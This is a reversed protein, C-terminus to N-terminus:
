RVGGRDDIMLQRRMLTTFRDRFLAFRYNDRWRDLGARGLATAKDREGLLFFSVTSSAAAITARSM